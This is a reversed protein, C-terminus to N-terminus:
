RTFTYTTVARVGKQELQMMRRGHVVEDYVVSGISIRGGKHWYDETRDGDIIVKGRETFEWSKFGPNDVKEKGRDTEYTCGSVYWKGIIWDQEDEKTCGAVLLFVLAILIRKM